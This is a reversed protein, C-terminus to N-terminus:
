TNMMEQILECWRDVSFSLFALAGTVLGKLAIKLCAINKQATAAGSALSVTNKMGQQSQCCIRRRVNIIQLFELITKSWLLAQCTIFIFTFSYFFPDFFDTWEIVILMLKTELRYSVTLM